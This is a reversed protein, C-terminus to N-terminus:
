KAKVLVAGFFGDTGHTHPALRLYPGPGLKAGLEAGLVEAVPRVSFDPHKSLFDEVVNENEERLVSCTGYILRGGPKVLMAFRALLAKQRGVHMELDEPTLRYRADPKRRFTGTGSCPADVLVRDALGKLPTLAADADPGEHPILQTRVNHVGARRARKRLDEMRGEDVDLAHLDGRNKMQAALQLTKGGAGACADVVRTPPADVLMGLLQSGEDQIEFGGDKFDQLSFLNLRTEMVLGFPSLSTPKTSEVDEAALREQLQARDGKLTNARVILPARENMAEAARAADKGFVAKFRDALFDPLSAAIPFRKAEPLADLEAAADPLRDLVSVDPGTLGSSRAVYTPDEGHLIRSAALRMVDQRTGDLADFKRHSKELLFDVTRQRRLLAYVREAVARRETSYLATKRRLVFELARDSLRGERRVGGYAELCAQLVLDERLPRNPNPRAREHQARSLKPKDARGGADKRKKPAGPRSTRPGGSKPAGSRSPGPKRTTAM